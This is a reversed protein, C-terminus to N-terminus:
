PGTSLTRSGELTACLIEIKRTLRNCGEKDSVTARDIIVQNKSLNTSLNAGVQLQLRIEDDKSLTLFLYLKKDEDDFDFPRSILKLGDRIHFERCRNGAIEGLLELTNSNAFATKM